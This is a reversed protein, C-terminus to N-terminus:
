RTWQGGPAPSVPLPHDCSRKRLQPVFVCKEAKTSSINQAPSNEPTAPATRNMRPYVASGGGQGQSRGM